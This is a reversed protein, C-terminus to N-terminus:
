PYAPGVDVRVRIRNGPRKLMRSHFTEGQYAWEVDWAVVREEDYWSSEVHCQQEYRTFHRSPHNHDHADRAIAGGLTAGAITAFTKDHGHGIQSGIVGGLITGFITAGTPDHSSVHHQVPVKRCVQREEPIQVVETVPQVHLVKAYDYHTSANASASYSSKVHGACAPLAFVALFIVSLIRLYKAM